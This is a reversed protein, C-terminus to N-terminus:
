FLPIRPGQCRIEKKIGGLNNTCFPWFTRFPRSCSEPWPKTSKRPNRTEMGMEILYQCWLLSFNFPVHIGNVSALHVWFFNSVQFNIRTINLEVYHRRDNCWPTAVLSRVHLGLCIFCLMHCVPATRAGEHKLWLFM